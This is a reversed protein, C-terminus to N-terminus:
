TWAPLAFPDSPNGVESTCRSAPPVRREVKSCPVTVHGVEPGQLREYGDGPRPGDAAWGDPKRPCDPATPPGAMPNEPATPPGAMPNEPATPPPAGSTM